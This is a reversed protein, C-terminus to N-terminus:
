GIYIVLGGLRPVEGEHVRQVGQYNKLFSKSRQWRPWNTIIVVYLAIMVGISVLLSTQSLQTILIEIM